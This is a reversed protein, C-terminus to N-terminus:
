MDGEKGEREEEEEEEDEETRPKATHDVSSGV